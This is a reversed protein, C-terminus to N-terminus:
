DIGGGCIKIIIREIIEIESIPRVVRKIVRKINRKMAGPVSQLSFGDKQILGNFAIEEIAGFRSKYEYEGDALYLERIGDNILNVISIYYLVTGVSYSRYQLDYTLNELYAKDGIISLLNIGAIEGNLYLVDADTIAYKRVYEDPTLHYNTGYTSLKFEFYKRIISNDIKDHFRKIELRFDNDLKNYYYKRNYRTKKGLTKLYDDENNPLINVWHNDASLGKYDNKSYMVNLFSVKPFHNFIYSILYNFTRQQIPTLWVALEMIDGSIYGQIVFKKRDCEIVHFNIVNKLGYKIDLRNHIFNPRVMSDYDVHDKQISIQPLEEKDIIENIENILKQKLVNLSDTADTEGISSYYDFRDFGCPQYERFFEYDMLEFEDESESSLNNFTFDGHEFWIDVTELKSLEHFYKKFDELEIIRERYVEPFSQLFNEKIREIVRESVVVTESEKLYLSELKKVPIISRHKYNYDRCNYLAYFSDNYEGYAFPQLIRFKGKYIEPAKLAWDVSRKLYFKQTTTQAIVAYIKRDECECIYKNSWRSTDKFIGTRVHNIKFGENKLIQYIM